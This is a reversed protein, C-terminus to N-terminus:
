RSSSLPGELDVFEPLASAGEAVDAFQEVDGMGGDEVVEFEDLGMPALEGLLGGVVEDELLEAQELGSEAGQEALVQDLLVASEIRGVEGAEVLGVVVFEGEEEALGSAEDVLDVVAGLEAAELGVLEFM